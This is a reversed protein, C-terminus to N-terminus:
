GGCGIPINMGRPIKRAPIPGRWRAGCATNAIPATDFLGWIWFSIALRDTM